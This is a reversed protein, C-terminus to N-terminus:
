SEEGWEALERVIMCAFAWRAAYLIGIMAVIGLALYIM